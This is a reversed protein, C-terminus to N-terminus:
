LPLILLLPIPVTPINLHFYEAELYDLDPSQEINHRPINDLISLQDKNAAGSLQRCHNVPFDPVM